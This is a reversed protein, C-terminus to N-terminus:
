EFKFFQDTYKEQITLRLPKFSQSNEYRGHFIDFSRVLRFNPGADFVFLQHVQGYSRYGGNDSKQFTSYPNKHYLLWKTLICVFIRTTQKALFSCIHYLAFFSFSHMCRLDIIPM